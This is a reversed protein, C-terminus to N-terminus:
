SHGFRYAADSFEVSIAPNEGPDYFRRGNNLVDAVVENGASIPLFENVVVWEYHWRVIRHAEDFVRDDATGRDRLRDVM